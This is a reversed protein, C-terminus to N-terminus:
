PMFPAELTARKDWFFRVFILGPNGNGDPSFFIFYKIVM